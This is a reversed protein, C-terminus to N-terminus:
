LPESLQRELLVAINEIQEPNPIFGTLRLWSNERELQRKIYRDLLAESDGSLHELEIVKNILNKLKPVHNKLDTITFREVDSDFKITTSSIINKINSNENTWVELIKNADVIEQKLFAFEHEHIDILLKMSAAILAAQELAFPKDKLEPAVIEELAKCMSEMHQKIYPQM